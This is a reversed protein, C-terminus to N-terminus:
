IGNVYEKREISSILLCRSPQLPLHGQHQLRPLKNKPLFIFHRHFRKPCFRSIKQFLGVEKHCHKRHVIFVARVHAPFGSLGDSNLAFPRRQLDHRCHRATGGTGCFKDGNGVASGGPSRMSSWPRLRSRCSCRAANLAGMDQGRCRSRVFDADAVDGTGNPM